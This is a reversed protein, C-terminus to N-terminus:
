VLKLTGNYISKLGQDTEILAEGYQGLGKFIGYFEQGSESISVTKNLHICRDSWDKILKQNDIYRHSRIFTSMEKAWSKKKLPFPAEYVGGFQERPYYLNIGIGAILNQDSGQVLVGGCKKLDKNLLDNPWKLSIAQGKAEFFRSILLSLELATFSPLQHPTINMSFCVTGPTDEWQRENRGYGHTQFECSVTLEAGKHEKLQEKLLDQTSDCSDVHIFKEM